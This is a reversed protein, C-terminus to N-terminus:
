KKKSNVKTIRKDGSDSCSLLLQTSHCNEHSSRLGAAALSRPEKIEKREKKKQWNTLYM